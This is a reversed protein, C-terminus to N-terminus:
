LAGVSRQALDVEVIHRGAEALGILRERADAGLTVHESAPAMASIRARVKAADAFLDISSAGRELETAVQHLQDAIARVRSATNTANEIVMAETREPNTGAVRTISTFSGAALATALAFHPGDGLANLVASSVVHPAHSITAVAADHAPGTPSIIRAGAARIVLEALVLWRDIDTQESICLAWTAGEFLDADAHEFGSFETGAMPHGPIFRMGLGSEHAWGEVPQKVSGVDTVIVDDRDGIGAAISVFTDRMARLPTAVVILDAACVNAVADVVTIGSARAAEQTSSSPDWGIVQHTRSLRQAVSGGILGLGIVGITPNQPFDRM